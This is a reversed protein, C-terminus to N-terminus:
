SVVSAGLRSWAAEAVRHSDLRVLCAMFDPNRCTSKECPSCELDMRLVSEPQGYPGTSAPDTPGFLAVLPVKLAAAMHMPGTDNTIFLSCRHIWAVLTQLTLRGTLDLCRPGVQRCIEAGLLRDGQGGFVAFCLSPDRRLLRHAVDAFASAPWRKNPWRAGPQFGVWRCSDSPWVSNVVSSADPRVPLWEFRQHIPVNLAQLVALYWDAAHCRAFPRPVSHDHLAPAGERRDDLGITLSGNAIWGILASRALSQLDIIWDYRELRLSRMTRFAEPWGVPTAWRHRDFPIVKSIDPDGDLLPVLERNIWWHIEATPFNRKLLRAVPLALIVDGLSSPKLVLIKM